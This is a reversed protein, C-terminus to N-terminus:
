HRAGKPVPHSCEALPGLTPEERPAVKVGKKGDEGRRPSGVHTWSSVRQLPM